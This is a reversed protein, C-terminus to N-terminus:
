NKLTIVVGTLAIVLGIISLLNIREGRLFYSLGLINITNFVLLTFSVKTIENTRKLVYYFFLNGVAFILIYAIIFYLIGKKYNKYKSEIIPKNFMKIILLTLVGFILYLIGKIVIAEDPEIIKLTKKEFIISLSYGIITILLLVYSNM